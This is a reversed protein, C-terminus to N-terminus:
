WVLLFLACVVCLSIPLRPVYSLGCVPCLRWLLRQFHAHASTNIPALGVYDHRYKTHTWGANHKDAIHMRFYRVECESTHVHVTFQTTNTRKVCQSSHSRASFFSRAHQVFYTRAQWSRAASQAGHGVSGKPEDSETDVM